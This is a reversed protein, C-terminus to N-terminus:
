PLVKSEAALDLPSKCDDPKPLGLQALRVGLDVMAAVLMKETQHMFLMVFSDAPWPQTAPHRDFRELHLQDHRNNQLTVHFTTCLEPWKRCYALKKRFSEIKQLVAAAETVQEPTM